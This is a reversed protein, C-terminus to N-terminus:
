YKLYWIGGYAFPLFRNYFEELTAEPDLDEFEEPWIYKALAEVSACDFVDRAMVHSIMYVENNKVASLENWGDRGDIYNKVLARLEEETGTYGMRLSDAQAPWYAGTLIIKDPDLSLLYEPQIEGQREVVGEGTTQGGVAYILKGWSYSHSFAKIPATPGGMGVEVHVMPRENTELLQDVREFVNTVKEAYYDMIEQAREEKGFLKGIMEVSQTHRDLEEDHFDIYLVPIGAAEFRPQISESVIAKLDHPLIVADPQSAIAAEMDFSDSEMSGFSPLEALQPMDKIYQEYQDRRNEPLTDDMNALHEYLSDGLIAALAFFPGGGGSWEVVVKDIPEDFTYTKGDLDTVTISGAAPEKQEQSDAAPKEDIKDSEVDSASDGCAALSFMMSLALILSCLKKM